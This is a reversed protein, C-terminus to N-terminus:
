AARSEPRVDLDTAGSASRVAKRSSHPRVTPHGGGALRLRLRSLRVRIAGPSSEHRSAIERDTYGLGADLLIEGDSDKVALAVRALEIRAEAPNNCVPEQPALWKRHASSRSRQLRAGSAITRRIAEDLESKTAPLAGTEIARLLYNLASEIGWSYDNLEQTNRSRQQLESYRQWAIETISM